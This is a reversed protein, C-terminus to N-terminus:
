CTCQSLLRYGGEVHDRVFLLQEVTGEFPALCVGEHQERLWSALLNRRSEGLGRIASVLEAFTTGAILADQVCLVLDKPLRVNEM